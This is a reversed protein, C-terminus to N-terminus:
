TANIATKVMDKFSFNTLNKAKTKNRNVIDQYEPSKVIKIIDKYDRSGKQVEQKKNKMWQYFKVVIDDLGKKHLCAIFKSSDGKANVKCAQMDTKADEELLSNEFEEIFNM